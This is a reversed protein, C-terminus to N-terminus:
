YIKELDIEGHHATYVVEKNKILFIQPSEHKVQFWESIKDSLNRQIQVTVLFIPSKIKEKEVMKEIENKFRESSGCSNSYKFIIVTKKVSEELIETLHTTEKFKM